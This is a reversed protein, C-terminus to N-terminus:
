WSNKNKNSTQKHTWYIKLTAYLIFNFTAGMTNQWTNAARQLHCHLRDIASPYIFIQPLVDVWKIVESWLRGLCRISYIHFINKFICVYKKISLVYMNVCNIVITKTKSHDCRFKQEFCKQACDNSYHIVNTRKYWPTKRGLLKCIKRFQNIRLNFLMSTSSFVAIISIEHKETRIYQDIDNLICCTRRQLFSKM